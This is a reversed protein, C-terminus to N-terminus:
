GFSDATLQCSQAEGARKWRNHIWLWQSPYKRVEDEIARTFAATINIADKDTDGTLKYELAPYIIGHYKKEKPNWSCFAPLIAAGTKIAFMAAGAATAAPRGFFEVFVCSGLTNQDPLIGVFENAKLCRMSTRVSSDRTMVNYGGSQRIDNIIGTMTPDDSNRAIVNLPYGQAVLKRALVEWNGFHATLIIGGKGRRLAEDTNETGELEIVNNIESQTFRRVIFFEVFARCFNCFTQKTLYKANAETIEPFAARLNAIAVRRYRKSIVYGLMGLARGIPDAANWPVRSLLWVLPRSIARVAALLLKKRFPKSDRGM